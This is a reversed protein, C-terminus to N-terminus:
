LICKVVFPKYENRFTCNERYKNFIQDLQCLKVDALEKGVLEAYVLSIYFSLAKLAHYVSLPNWLTDLTTKNKKIQAIYMYVYPYDM